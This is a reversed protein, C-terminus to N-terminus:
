RRLRLGGTRDSLSIYMAFLIWLLSSRLGQHTLGYAFIPVMLLIRRFNGLFVTRFVFAFFLITGIVGYCFFITGLSSHLEHSGQAETRYRRYHGEGAGFLWMDPHALIRDYGRGEVFGLEDPTQLRAAAREVVNSIPAVAIVLVGAVVATLLITRLRDILGLGMILAMAILGAKSASILALYMAALLGITALRSSINARRFTLVILVSSVVAYYGLQNPNNFLIMGRDGGGRLVFSLAVQTLLSVIVWRSTHYVFREGYREFMALGVLFVLANYIYFFPSLIFGHKLSLSWANSLVSWGINVLVVWGTFIMLSSVVRRAGPRLRGNWGRLAVPALVLLLLDGPQPLGSTTVYIPFLMIYMAWLLLAPGRGLGGVRGFGGSLDRKRM